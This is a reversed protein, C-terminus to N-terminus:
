ATEVHIKYRLQLSGAHGVPSDAVMSNQAAYENQNNEQDDVSRQIRPVEDRRMQRTIGEANQQM